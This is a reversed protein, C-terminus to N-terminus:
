EVWTFWSMRAFCSISCPALTLAIDIRYPSVGKCLAHRSKTSNRRSAPALGFAWSQKPFIGNTHIGGRISGTRGFKQQVPRGRVDINGSSRSLGEKDPNTNSNFIKGATNCERIVGVLDLVLEQELLSFDFLHQHFSTGMISPNLLVGNFLHRRFPKVM